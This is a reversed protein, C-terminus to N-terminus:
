GTVWALCNLAERLKELEEIGLLRNEFRIREIYFIARLDENGQNLGEFDKVQIIETFM